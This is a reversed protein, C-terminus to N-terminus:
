GIELVTARWHGRHVELRLAGARVRVGDHIVVSAEAVTPSVRCLHSRLVTARRVAGPRPGCDRLRAGLAEYVQPTVWRVLQTLPRGGVLAEVAALVVPGCVTAPDPLSPGAPGPRRLAHAWAQETVASHVPRLGPLSLQPAPLASATPERRPPLLLRPARRPPGSRRTKDLGPAATRPAPRRLTATSM